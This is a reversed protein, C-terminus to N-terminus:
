SPWFRSLLPDEDESRFLHLLYDKMQSFEGIRLDFMLQRVEWKRFGASLAEREPETLDPHWFDIILIIRRARSRNWVEHEFSDEFLLVRGEEWDLIQDGVRISCGKPIVLGFHCRLRLNDVSCHPTLHTGPFHVSFLVDAWPYAVALDPLRKLLNGAVPCADYFPGTRVGMYYLPHTLWAGGEKHRADYDIYLQQAELTAVEGRLARFSDEITKVWPYENPSHVPKNDLGPFIPLFRPAQFRKPREERVEGAMTKLFKKVRDLGPGASMIIDWYGGEKMVRVIEKRRDAFRKEM